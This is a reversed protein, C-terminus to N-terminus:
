HKAPRPNKAALRAQLSAKLSEKAAVLDEYKIAAQRMLEENEELAKKLRELEPDLTAM